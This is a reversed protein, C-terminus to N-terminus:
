LLLRVKGAMDKKLKSKFEVFNDEEIIAQNKVVKFKANLEIVFTEDKGNEKADINERVVSLWNIEASKFLKLKEKRENAECVGVVLKSVVTFL